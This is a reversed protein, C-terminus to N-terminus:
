TRSRIRLIFDQGQARDISWLRRQQQRLLDDTMRFLALDIGNRILIINEPDVKLDHQLHQAVPKSIAIVKRGWCGFYRRWFRPRFFGHCTTILPVGTMSSLLTGIVQTVRTQAHILDIKEAVLIEKLKPLAWFVKPHLESKVKINLRIHKICAAELRDVANGGSSVVIVQHGQRVLADSLSLVYSTIGGTNFHTTLLLVRM